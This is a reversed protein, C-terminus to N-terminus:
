RSNWKSTHCRVLRAARLRDAVGVAAHSSNLMAIM